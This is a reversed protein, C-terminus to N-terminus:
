FRIDQVGHVHSTYFTEEQKTKAIDLNKYIVALHPLSDDALLQDFMFRINRFRDQFIIKEIKDGITELNKRFYTAVFYEAYSQHLFKNKKEETLGIIIGIAFCEEIEEFKQEYEIKLEKLTKVDFIAVLAAYEHSNLRRAKIDKIIAKRQNNDAMLEAKEKFYINFKEDVFHEFLKAVSFLDKLLIEYKEPNQIFLETLMFIQLPIGLIDNYQVNTIYNRIKASIENLSKKMGCLRKEIYIRQQDVDFPIIPNEEEFYQSHHKVIILITWFTPFYNNKFKKMLISKGMGPEGTILNIDNDNEYDFLQMEDVFHHKSRYM